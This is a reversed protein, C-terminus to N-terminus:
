RGLPLPSSRCRPASRGCADDAGAHRTRQSLQSQCPKRHWRGSSPPTHSDVRWVLPQQAARMLPGGLVDRAALAANTNKPQRARARARRRRASTPARGDPLVQTPIQRRAPPQRRRHQPPPPQSTRTASSIAAVTWAGPRPEKAKIAQGRGELPSTPSPRIAAADARLDDSSSNPRGSRFDNDSSGSHAAALWRPNQRGAPGRIHPPPNNTGAPTSGSNRKYHCRSHRHRNMTATPAQVDIYNPTFGHKKRM